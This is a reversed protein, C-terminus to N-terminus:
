KLTYCTFEVKSFDDVTTLINFRDPIYLKNEFVIYPDPVGQKIKYYINKEKDILKEYLVWPGILTNVTELSYNVKKSKPLEVLMNQFDTEYESPNKLYMIVDEPLDNFNVTYHKLSSLEHYSKSCGSLSFLM